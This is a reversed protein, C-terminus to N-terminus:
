RLDMLHWVKKLAYFSIYV